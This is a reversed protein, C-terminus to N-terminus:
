VFKSFFFSSGLSVALIDDRQLAPRNKKRHIVASRSSLVSGSLLFARYFVCSVDRLFILFILVSSYLISYLVSGSPIPHM